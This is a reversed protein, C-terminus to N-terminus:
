WSNRWHKWMKGGHHRRGLSIIRDFLEGGELLEMILTLTDEMVLSPFCRFIPFEGIVVPNQGFFWFHHIKQNRDGIYLPNEV